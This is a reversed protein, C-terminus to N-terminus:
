FILLPTGSRDSQQFLLIRIVETCTNSPQQRILRLFTVHTRQVHCQLNLLFIRLFKFLDTRMQCKECLRGSLLLYKKLFQGASDTLCLIDQCLWAVSKIIRSLFPHQRRHLHIFLLRCLQELIIFIRTDRHHFLQIRQHFLILIQLVLNQKTLLPCQAGTQSSACSLVHIVLPQM